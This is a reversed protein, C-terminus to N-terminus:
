IKKDFGSGLCDGSRMSIHHRCVLTPGSQQPMIRTASKQTPASGPNIPGVLFNVKRTAVGTLLNWKGQVGLILEAHVPLRRLLDGQAYTSSSM